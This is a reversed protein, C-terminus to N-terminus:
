NPAIWSQTAKRRRYIIGLGLLGVGVLALSMPEPVPDAATVGVILDNYDFDSGERALLDEVGIFTWNGIPAIGTMVGYAAGLDARTLFSRADTQFDAYTSQVAVHQDGDSAPVGAQFNQGTTTNAFVFNIVQGPTLGTLQVLTGLPSVHNDILVPSPLHGPLQLQDDDGADSFAFVINVTSTAATISCTTGASPNPPFIPSSSVCTAHAQGALGLTAITATALLLKRM